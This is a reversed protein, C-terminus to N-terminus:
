KIFTVNDFMVAGAESLWFLNDNKTTDIDSLNLTKTEWVNSKSPKLDIGFLKVLANGSTYIVDISMQTFGLSKAANILGALGGPSVTTDHISSTYVYAFAKDHSSEAAEDEIISISPTSSHTSSFLIESTEESEFDLVTAFKTFRFNDFLIYDGGAQMWMLNTNSGSASSDLSVKKTVWEGAKGTGFSWGNIQISHNANSAYIDVALYDYGLAKAIDIHKKINAWSANPNHSGASSGAQWKYVNGRGSDTPDSVTSTAAGNGTAGSLGIIPSANHEDFDAITADFESLYIESIYVKYGTTGSWFRLWEDTANDKIELLSFTYEGWVNASLGVSISGNANYPFFSVTGSAEAYIKFTIYAFEDLAVNSIQTKKIRDPLQLYATSATGTDEMLVSKDGELLPSDALSVNEEGPQNGCFDFDKETGDFLVSKDRYYVNFVSKGNAYVIGSAKSEEREVVSYGEIEEDITVSAGVTSEVSGSKMEDKVYEGDSNKIFYNVTYTTKETKFPEIYTDVLVGSADEGNEAALQAVYTMSRLNDNNDAFIYHIGEDDTYRVYGACTYETLMNETFMNVVSGNFVYVDNEGDKGASMASSETNIIQYLGAKGAASDEYSIGARKEEATLWGYKATSGNVNEEANLAFKEHYYGPAIFIGFSVSKVPKEEGVNETLAIYEEASLAMTFRLGGKPCDEDPVRVFAGKIMYPNIAAADIGSASANFLSIGAAGCIAVAIAMFLIALKKRISITKM